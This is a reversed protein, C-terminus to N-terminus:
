CSAEPDSTQRPRMGTFSNKKFTRAVIEFPEVYLSLPAGREGGGLWLPLTQKRMQIEQFTPPPHMDREIM